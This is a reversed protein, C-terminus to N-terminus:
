ALTLGHRAHCTDGVFQRFLEQNLAQVEGLGREALEGLMRKVAAVAVQRQGRQAATLTVVGRKEAFALCEEAHGLLKLKTDLEYWVAGAQGARAKYFRDMLAVDAGLRWVLLDVQRTVREARDQRVYGQHVATLLSYLMHTGGCTFGHVPAHATLPRGDRMAEAVPASARELMGLATEVIADLDVTEGWGNTWRSRVAPTTRALAIVSWPLLRANSTAVQPRFLARAGDVVERLTRSQGDRVFRHDLPVGAELMTKLFSNPHAEVEEPFALARGAGTPVLTLHRELLFDVASQGGKVKFSKGMARLGHAVAWPDDPLTAYREIVGVEPASSGAWAPAGKALALATVGAVFQRRTLSPHCTTPYFFAAPSGGIPESGM